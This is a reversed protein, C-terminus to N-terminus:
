MVSADPSQPRASPHSPPSRWRLCRVRERLVVTRCPIRCLINAVKWCCHCCFMQLIIRSNAYELVRKRKDVPTHEVRDTKSVSSPRPSTWPIASPSTRRWSAGSRCSSCMDWPITCSKCIFLPCCPGPSQIGRVDISRDILCEGFDCACQM